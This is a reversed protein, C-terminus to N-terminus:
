DTPVPAEWGDGAKRRSTRLTASSEVSNLSSLPTIKKLEVDRLARYNKVRLSEIRPVTQQSM